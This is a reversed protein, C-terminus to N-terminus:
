GVKVIAFGWSDRHNVCEFGHRAVFESLARKVPFAGDSRPSGEPWQLETDHLCIVGGPRVLPLYTELEAATQRYHHSTDIFVIDAPELQEIVFPDLDDGQIFSWHDYEGIPPREDLDVSVLSGGTKALAYLWAITSVGTRTGLEIVHQADLTEVLEVMRPLHLWIDSPTACQEAYREALYYKAFGGEAVKRSGPGPPAVNPDQYVSEKTGLMAWRGIADVTLDAISRLTIRHKAAAQEYAVRHSDDQADDFVIVGGPAVIRAAMDAWMERRKGNAIDVFVLDFSGWIPADALFLGDTALGQDALFQGTKDLWDQDTDVTVVEADDGWRRFVASSLGSGLDLIRQPKVAGCLHRLYACTAVSAAHELGSVSAVYERWLDEVDAFAADWEDVTPAWRRM